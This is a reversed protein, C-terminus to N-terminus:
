FRVSIWVVDIRIQSLGPDLSTAEIVTTGIYNGSYEIVQVQNLRHILIRLIAAEVREGSPLTTLVVLPRNVARRDPVVSSREPEVEVSRHHPRRNWSLQEL